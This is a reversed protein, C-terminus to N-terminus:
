TVCGRLWGPPRRARQPYRRPLPDSLRDPLHHALAQTDVQEELDCSYDSHSTEDALASDPLQVKKFYSSNRTIVKDDRRASVMSGKKSIVQFLKPDSPTQSKGYIKDRQFIVTDGTSIQSPKVYAKNYSYTKMKRKRIDVQKQLDARLAPIKTQM